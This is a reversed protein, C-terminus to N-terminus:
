PQVEVVEPNYLRVITGITTPTTRGVANWCTRIHFDYYEHQGNEAEKGGQVTTIWIGEVQSVQRFTRSTGTSENLTGLASNDTTSSSGYFSYVLRPQVNAAQFVDPRYKSQIIIDDLLRGYNNGADSNDYYDNYDFNSGSPQLLRTNLVFGNQQQISKAKQIGDDDSPANQYLESCSLVNFDGLRDPTIALGGNAGDMTMKRWLQVYEQQDPALEREALFSNQVFRLAEAQADIENRAMVVEMSAQSTAIGKNMLGIATVSVISFIVIAFIVEILTDGRRNLQM